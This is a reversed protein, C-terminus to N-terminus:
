RQLGTAIREAEERTFDATILAENTIRDRVTPASIVQGDVIIALPKGTHTATATAMRAGADPALTVAVNFRGNIEIVRAQLVDNTTVIREDHLFVQQGSNQVTARELGAVPETEALRIELLTTQVPDTNLERLVYRMRQADVDPSFQHAQAAVNPCLSYAILLSYGATLRTRGVRHTDSM